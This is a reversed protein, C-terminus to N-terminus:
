SKPKFLEIILAVAEEVTLQGVVVRDEIARIQATPEPLGEQTGMRRAAEMVSARRRVEDLPLVKM